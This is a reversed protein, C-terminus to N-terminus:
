QIRRFKISKLYCVEDTSLKMGTVESSSTRGSGSALSTEDIAVEYLGNEFKIGYQHWQEVSADSTVWSDSVNYKMHSENAGVNAAFIGQMYSGETGSAVMIQPSASGGHYSACKLEVILECNGIYDFDLTAGRRLYLAGQETTFDYEAGTALVMDQPLEGSTASWEYDWYPPSVVVDFTTTKESASVTITSTGVTLTGSLTYDTIQASRGNDYYGTVVLYAKLDNLPTTAYIVASGQTFEATIRVLNTLPYLADDLADYYDQGHEDIWAVHAFCNLLAVKADESLGKQELDSKLDSIEDGTKKADAAAGTTTLTADVAPISQRVSEIAQEAAALDDEIDSIQSDLVTKDQETLVRDVSGPTYCIYFAKGNQTSTDGSQVVAPEGAVMKSKIFDAFAGRRFQIAM